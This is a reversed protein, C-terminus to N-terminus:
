AWMIVKTDRIIAWTMMDDVREKPRVISGGKETIKKLTEDVDEVTIVIHPRDFQQTRPAITGNIANPVAVQMTNEDTPALLYVVM